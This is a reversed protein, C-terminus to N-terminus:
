LIKKHFLFLKNLLVLIKYIYIYITINIFLFFIGLTKIVSILDFTM